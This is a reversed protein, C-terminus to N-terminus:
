FDGFMYKELKEGFRGPCCFRILFKKPVQSPQDSKFILLLLLLRSCVTSPTTDTFVCGTDSAPHRIKITILTLITKYALGVPTKTLVVPAKTLVVPTKTLVMPTKTLAGM